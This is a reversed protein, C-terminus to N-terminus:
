AIVLSVTLMRRAMEASTRVAIKSVAASELRNHHRVASAVLRCSAEVMLSCITAATRM